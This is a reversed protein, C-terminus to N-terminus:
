DACHGAHDGPLLSAQGVGRCLARTRKAKPFDDGILETLARGRAAVVFPSPSGQKPDDQTASLSPNLATQSQPATSM